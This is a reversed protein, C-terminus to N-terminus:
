SPTRRWWCTAPARTWGHAVDFLEPQADAGDLADRLDRARHLHHGRGLQAPELVLGGRAPREGVLDLTEHPLEGTLHFILRRPRQEGFPLVLLGHAAEHDRGVATQAAGVVGVQERLHVAEEVLVRALLRQ